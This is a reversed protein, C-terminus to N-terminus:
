VPEVQLYQQRDQRWLGVPIEDKLIILVAEQPDSDPEVQAPGKKLTWRRCEEDHRVPDRGEVFTAILACRVPELMVPAGDSTLGVCVCVGVSIPKEEGSRGWARLAREGALDESEDDDLYVHKPDVAEIGVAGSARRYIANFEALRGSGPKADKVDIVSEVIPDGEDVELWAKGWVIAPHRGFANAWEDAQRLPLGAKRRKRVTEASQGVVGAIERDSLEGVLPELPLRRGTM